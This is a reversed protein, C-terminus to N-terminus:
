LFYPISKLKYLSVNKQAHEFYDCINEMEEIVNYWLNYTKGIYVM